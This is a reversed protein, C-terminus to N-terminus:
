VRARVSNLKKIIVIIHTSCTSSFYFLRTGIFPAEFQLSSFDCLHGSKYFLLVAFFVWVIVESVGLSLQQQRRRGSQEGSREEPRPIDVLHDGAAASTKVRQRVAGARRDAKGAKVSYDDDDDHNSNIDDDGEEEEEADDAAKMRASVDVFLLPACLFSAFTWCSGPGFVLMVPVCVVMGLVMFTGQLESVGAVAAADPHDDDDGGGGHRHRRQRQRRRHFLLALLLALSALSAAYVLRPFLIKWLYVFHDLLALRQFTWYVASCLLSVAHLALLVGAPLLSPRSSSSSSSPSSSSSSLSFFRRLALTFTFLIIALPVLTDWAFQASFFFQVGQWVLDGSEPSVARVQSAEM